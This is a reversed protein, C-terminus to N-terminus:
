KNKANLCLLGPSRKLNYAIAELVHQTHVKQRGKFRTVGARFWRVMGGFTREVVWRTKSIAKNYRKQWISLPTNRYGKQMIRSKSGKSKLFADNSKSKYGKDGMVEKRQSKPIKDILSSLGKSDHENAPTTHVSLVLGEKDTAIHKKYGYVFKNNKKLWRAEGDAQPQKKKKIEHYKREKEIEEVNREEEKRDEALEYTTKGKPSFPSSTISADIKVQGHNVMVKHTRLQSNLKKLIRDYAKKSTLEGRFRSLTSHDPVSDEIALGCFLSANLNENVMEETQVDSIGYWTSILQMKFLILPHYAKCGREKEGRKYVKRLEKEISSWDVLTNVQRFFVNKSTRKQVYEKVFSMNTINLYKYSM